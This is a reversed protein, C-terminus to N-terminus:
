KLLQFLLKAIETNDYQGYFLNSHSGFAYLPVDIGSHGQTTWGTNTRKDIIKALARRYFYEKTLMESDIKNKQVDDKIANYNAIAQTHESTVSLIQEFERHTLEFNLWSNIIARDPKLSAVIKSAMFRTSHKISQLLAPEWRYDEDAAISFGGTSHDATIVVLTEPYEAVYKELYTLTKALDDVEHMAQAVDNDHGAWDIQSAEVLLFFGKDNSLQQLASKTLLALRDQNSDDIAAPLGYDAFLGLVPKNPKLNPLQKFNDIYQFGERRFEQVLNRDKRIFNHWGGGFYLDAMIGKDIYSDAIENYNRRNKNHTLYAAPTAHNIRSTVVVGTKKGLAKASDFVTKLPTNNVDVGIADNYTKVGTALATAAAASDTVYGSERAPYTSVMGKLYHDFVTTEVQPTSPDDKFYRFGTTYAPGMGDAIVMIINKPSRLVQDAGPTTEITAAKCTQSSIITANFTAIFLLAPLKFSFNKFKHHSQNCTLSM